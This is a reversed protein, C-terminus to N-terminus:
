AFCFKLGVIEGRLGNACESAKSYSKKHVSAAEKLSDYVGLLVGDQYVATKRRGFNRLSGMQRYDTKAQVRRNNELTLPDASQEKSTAWELNEVRNDHRVGNRHNVTPKNMPNPIFAYAVLRHAKLTMRVNNISVVYYLYGYRDKSPSLFKESRRSYLRGDDTIEYFGQLFDLERRENSM